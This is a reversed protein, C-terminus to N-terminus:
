MNELTNETKTIDDEKLKDKNGFLLSYAFKEYDTTFKLLDPETFSKPLIWNKYLKM